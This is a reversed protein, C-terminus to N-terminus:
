ETADHSMIFLFISRGSQTGLVGFLPLVLSFLVPVYICYLWLGEMAGHLM